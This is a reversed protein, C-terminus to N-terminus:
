IKFLEDLRTKGMRLCIEAAENLTFASHGNIKQGVSWLSLNLWEAIQQQTIRQKRMCLILNDLNVPSGRVACKM